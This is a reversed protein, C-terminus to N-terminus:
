PALRRLEEVLTDIRDPQGGIYDLWPDRQAEAQLAGDFVEQARTGEGLRDLARGLAVLASQGRPVREVAAAFATAAGRPDGLRERTRGEFLSAMYRQAPRPSERGVRELEPLAERPRGRLLLVRGLRLRAELLGPDRKLARAYLAQADALDVGPLRGGEGLKGEIVFQPEDRSGPQRRPEEPLDYTRLAAITESVAGLALLLEADDEAQRRGESLMEYAGALDAMGHLTLGAFLYFRRKFLDFAGTPRTAHALRAAAQLDWRARRPDAQHLARMAADSLLVAAAPLTAEGKALEDPTARGALAAARVAEVGELLGHTGAEVERQTWLAVTAVADELDASRYQQAVEGLTRASGAGAAQTGPANRAALLGLVVVATTVAFLTAGGGVWPPV